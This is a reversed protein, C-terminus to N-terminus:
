LVILGQRVSQCLSLKKARDRSACYEQQGDSERSGAFPWLRYTLAPSIKCRSAPTFTCCLSLCSPGWYRPGEQKDGIPPRTIPDWAFDPTPLIITDSASMSRGRLKFRCEGSSPRVSASIAATAPGKCARFTAMDQLNSESYAPKLDGGFLALAETVFVCTERVPPSRRVSDIRGTAGAIRRDNASHRRLSNESHRGQGDQLGTAASPAVISGLIRMLRGSSSLALHL